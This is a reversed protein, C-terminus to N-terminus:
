ASYKLWNFFCGATKRGIAVLWREHRRYRTAQNANKKEELESQNM